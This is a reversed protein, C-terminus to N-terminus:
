PVVLPMGSEFTLDLPEGTHWEDGVSAYGYTIDMAGEPTLTWEDAGGIGIMLGTPDGVVVVPSSFTWLVRAPALLVVSVIVVDTPPAAIAKRPKRRPRPPRIPPPYFYM